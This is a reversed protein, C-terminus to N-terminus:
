FQVNTILIADIPHKISIVPMVIAISPSKTAPTTLPEVPSPYEDQARGNRAVATPNFVAIINTTAGAIIAFTATMHDAPY